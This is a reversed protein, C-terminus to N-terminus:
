SRSRLEALFARYIAAPRLCFIVRELSTPGALHDFVAEIMVRAAKEAPFGGGGTGLGPLALAQAGLAEAQALSARTAARLVVESPRPFGQAVSTTVAHIVHRAPLAGGGVAVATGPTAPARALGEAQVGPGGRAAIARGVAGVLLLEDNSPCVIADVKAEAIDGETVIVERVAGEPGPVVALWGGPTPAPEDSSPRLAPALQEGLWERVIRRVEAAAETLGHEVGPLIVLRKPELARTYIDQSALPSLITDAEGHILLLPRPALQAVAQTGYRQSSMALVAKIMPHLTGAMIAVAGGFSHGGVVIEEAGIGKLFSVGALVDLVCEELVNPLRYSLRLSSVGLRTLEQGLDGYMGEAPGNLGGMAGGVWIVAATGGEHAHFIAAIDGRSTRLALELVGEALEAVVDVRYLSLQLDEQM